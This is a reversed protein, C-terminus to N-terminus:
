ISNLVNEWYSKYQIQYSLTRLPHRDMRRNISSFLKVHPISHLSSLRCAIIWRCKFEKFWTSVSDISNASYAFQAYCIRIVNFTGILPWLSWFSDNRLLKEMKIPKQSKLHMWITVLRCSKTVYIDWLFLREAEVLM